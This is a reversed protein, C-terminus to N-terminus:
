STPARQRRAEYLLLAATVATNLSEVPAEMPITVREDAADVISQPLGPGEGGVLIAVTGKLDVTFLTRGDRPVTAIIRCRYRRADVLAQNADAHVAIPLRLASGMSGRLAKWGFPDAGHGAAILGSAGAAEAVRVIAGVNGPDQVHCAIVVFPTKGGYVRGADHQPREALAVVVSPSRVPSVASMVPATAAAVDIGGREVSHILARIDGRDIADAGVLVHRIAVGAALADAVLHAGDLLVLGPEDGRAAALFKAVLANQRSTIRHM